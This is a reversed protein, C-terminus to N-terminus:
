DRKKLHIFFCVVIYASKIENFTQQLLDLATLIEYRVLPHNVNLSVIVNGEFSFVNLLSLFDRSNGLISARKTYLKSYKLKCVIIWEKADTLSPILAQLAAGSTILL